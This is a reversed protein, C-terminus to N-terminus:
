PGRRGLRKGRFVGVQYGLWAAVLAAAVLQILHLVSWVLSAIWVGALIVLVVVVAVGALKLGLSGGGGGGGDGGGRGTPQPRYVADPRVSAPQPQGPQIVAPQARTATKARRGGGKRGGKGGGNDGGAQLTQCILCQGAAFGHICNSDAVDGHHGMRVAFPRRNGLPYFRTRIGVSWVLSPIGHSCRDKM